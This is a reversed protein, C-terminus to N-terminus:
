GESRMQRRGEESTEALCQGPESIISYRGYRGENSRLLSTPPLFLSLLFFHLSPPQFPFPHFLSLLPLHSLLSFPPLLCLVQECVRTYISLPLSDSASATVALMREASARALPPSM